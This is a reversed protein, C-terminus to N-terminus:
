NMFVWPSGHYGKPEWPNGERPPDPLGEWAIAQVGMAM